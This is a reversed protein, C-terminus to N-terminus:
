TCSWAIRHPLGFVAIRNSISIANGLEVYKQRRISEIFSHVYTMSIVRRSKMYKQTLNAAISIDIKFFIQTLNRRDADFQATLGM